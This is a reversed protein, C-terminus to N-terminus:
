LRLPEIVVAPAAAGATPGTREGSAVGTVQQMIANFAASSSKLRLHVEQFVEVSKWLEFGLKDRFLAISAANDM